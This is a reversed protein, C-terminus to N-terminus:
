VRTALPERTASRRPRCFCDNNCTCHYRLRREGAATLLRHVLRGGRDSEALMSDEYWLFPAHTRLVGLAGRLVAEEHGQVDLKVFGVEIRQPWGLAQVSHASLAHDLTMVPVHEIAVGLSRLAQKAKWSAHPVKVARPVMSSSDMALHLAGIGTHDALCSHVLRFQADAIRAASRAHKQAVDGRCEFALVPHGFGRALLAEAAHEAAGVDVLLSTNALGHRHASQLVACFQLADARVWRTPRVHSPLHCAVADRDAANAAAAGGSLALMGRESAAVYLRRGGRGTLARRQFILRARATFLLLRSRHGRPPQRPQVVQREARVGRAFGLEFAVLRM